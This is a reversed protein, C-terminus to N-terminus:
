KVRAMSLEGLKPDVGLSKYARKLSAKAEAGATDAKVKGSFTVRRSM